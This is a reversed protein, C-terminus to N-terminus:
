TYRVEKCLPFLAVVCSISETYLFLTIELVLIAKGLDVVMSNLETLQIGVSCLVNQNMGLFSM